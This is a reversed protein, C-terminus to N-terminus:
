KFCEVALIFQNPESCSNSVSTCGTRHGIMKVIKISYSLHYSPNLVVREQESKTLTRIIQMLWDTILLLAISCRNM